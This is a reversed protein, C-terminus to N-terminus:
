GTLFVGKWELDRWKVVLSPEKIQSKVIGVPRIKMRPLDKGGKGTM